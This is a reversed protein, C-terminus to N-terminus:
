KLYLTIKVVTGAGYESTIELNAGWNKLTTIAHYLGLGHGSEKTSCGRTGLRPILTPHVGLGNDSLNIILSDQNTNVKVEVIGLESDIADVSNDILNSLIRKFTPAHIYPQALSAQNDYIVDFKIKRDHYQVRKENVIDEVHTVVPQKVLESEVAASRKLLNNAVEKIRAIAARALVRREEPLSEASLLSVDLATLPSRIDHAVQNAIEVRAMQSILDSKLLAREEEDLVQKKVVIDLTEGLEVPLSARRQSYEEKKGDLYLAAVDTISYSFDRIQKVLFKSVFVSILCGLVCGVSALRIADRSGYQSLTLFLLSIFVAFLTFLKYSSALSKVTSKEILEPKRQIALVHVSCILVSLLYLYEYFGFQPEGYVLKEVRLAWDCLVLAVLGSSMWEWFSRRANVLVRMATSILLLTTLVGLIEVFFYYNFSSGRYANWFPNLLLRIALPLTIFYPLYNRYDKFWGRIGYESYAMMSLAGLVYSVIYVNTTLLTAYWTKSSIGVAYYFFAYFFDGFGLLVFFWVLLYGALKTSGLSNERLARSYFFYAILWEIIPESFGIICGPKFFALNEIIILAFFVFLVCFYSLYKKVLVEKLYDM